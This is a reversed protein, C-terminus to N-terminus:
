RGPSPSASASAARSCTRIATSTSPASASRAAADGHARDRANPPPCTPTSSGAARRPRRRDEPAPQALRLPEPVGDAGQPATSAHRRQQRIDIESATSAAARRLDACRDADPHARADVQRLRVRRRHRADQGKRRQLHRGQRRPHHPRRRVPRRRRSLRPRCPATELVVARMLRARRAASTASPPCATAPPTRPCRRSCRAPTPPHARHLPDLVDSEEMKSAPSVPRDRSRRNRRRRGHRPHDAGAGHRARGAPRVLLDLIQAQITVDLATTPEDAILLKPNCAIAMAIMVRQCMGGSLQHPFAVLRESPTPSASRSSCNSPATRPARAQGHRPPLQLTEDLQFGVTFCPNLSSMPEQFIMAIDNGVIKRSTPAAVHDAPGPRRVDHPRRHRDRDAAAPGHRALMAVSKGSGSEGVIALVERADVHPRHRRRGQVARRPHRVLRHPEQNRASAM